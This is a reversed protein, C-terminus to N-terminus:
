DAGAAIFRFFVFLRKPDSHHMYDCAPVSLHCPARKRKAKDLHLSHPLPLPLPFSQPSDVQLPTFRASAFFLAIRAHALSHPFLCGDAFTLQGDMFYPPLKELDSLDFYVWNLMIFLFSLLAIALGKVLGLDDKRPEFKGTTTDLARNAICNHRFTSYCLSIALASLLMFGEKFEPSREGFMGMMLPNTNWTEDKLAINSFLLEGPQVIEVGNVEFRFQYFGTPTTNTTSLGEFKYLGACDLLSQNVVCNTGGDAVSEMGWDQSIYSWQEPGGPRSNRYGQKALDLINNDFDVMTVNVRKGTMRNCLVCMDIKCLTSLESEQGWDNHKSGCRDRRKACVLKCILV